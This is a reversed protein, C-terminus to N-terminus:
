FISWRERACCCFAEGMGRCRDWEGQPSCFTWLEDGPQMKGKLIDWDDHIRGFPIGDDYM